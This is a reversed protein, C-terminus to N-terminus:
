SQAELEPAPPAALAARVTDALTDTGFPKQLFEMGDLKSDPGIPVDQAYGSMIVVRLSPWRSRLEHAIDTGSGDPLVYDTLLLDFGPAPPLYVTEERSGVTTVSYGLVDLIERLGSRVAPDDEVVLIRQGNGLSTVPAPRDESAVSESDDGAPLCVRVTTGEDLKSDVTIRGGLRTVIGHVVSLGLGTGKGPDKTTFFPEFLQDRIEDPIGEGSDTVELWSQDGNRDTRIILRGGKPMADCANVALNMVVQEIQGRDAVLPLDMNIPLYVLEINERLLRHLLKVTDRIVDNLDLREQRQTDRRSFLLLQRTLQSGRRVHEELEALRSMLEDDGGEARQRLLETAGLMAQLLNNFDHAVGGALRGVAEMKQAQLLQAEAHQRESIDIMTGELIMPEGTDSRTLSINALVCVDSQDARKLFMEHNRIEGQRDVTEILRDREASNRYFDTAPRSLAEEPHELGLIRAFAENCAMLRGSVTSRFVGALNREFLSRYRQESERIAENARMRETIDLFVVTVMRPATQFAHVEYAGRITEDEYHIQETHWPVGELAAQRYREPVETEALAPFSEELTKGIYAQCDVGLLTNAAPNFGVFVLRDDDTLRYMHLGMPIANVISRFREESLQLRSEAVNRRANALAHAVQDAVEGAFAVEDSQWIRPGGTHELCVVGTVRGSLRVPADLLSSIELPELYESRLESTRFDTLADDADVVRDSELAEFYRPFSSAALRDGSRHAGAASDYLDRCGITENDDEFLWVSARRVELADAAAETIASLATKLDGAVVGDHTAISVIANQQRAVRRIRSQKDEEARRHETIDEFEGVVHAVAGSPDHAASLTVRAWVWPGHRHHVRVLAQASSAEGALLARLDPTLAAADDPHCQERWSMGELEAATYALMNQFARNTRVIQGDRDWLVKGIATNDFATRFREESAALAAEAQRRQSIEAITLMLHARGDVEHAVGRVEVPIWTEDIHALRTELTHPKGAEEVASAIASTVVERDDEHVLDLANTGILSEPPRGLLRNVSPSTQRIDGNPDLVCLVETCHEFLCHVLHNDASAALSDKATEAEIGTGLFEGDPNAGDGLERFTWTILRCANRRDDFLLNWRDAPDSLDGDALRARLTPLRDGGLYEWLFHGVVEDPALGLRNCFHDNCRRISGLRDVVVVSTAVQDLLDAPRPTLAREAPEGSPTSSSSVRNVENLPKSFRDSFYAVAPDSLGAGHKVLRASRHAM